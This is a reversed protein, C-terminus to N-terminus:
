YTNEAAAMNHLLFGKHDINAAELSPSKGIDALLALEAVSTDVNDSLSTGM